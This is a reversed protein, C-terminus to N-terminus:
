TSNRSFARTWSLIADETEQGADQARMGTRHFGGIGQEDLNLCLLDNITKRNIPMPYAIGNVIARM